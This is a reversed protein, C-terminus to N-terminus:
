ATPSHETYGHRLLDAVHLRTTDLLPISGSSGEPLILPLETGGLIVAEVRHAQELRDIVALLGARTEPRFVGLALEEFYVRHAYDRDAAAPTHVQIGMRAFTEPYFTAEMTTRTGLLGVSTLGRAAAERATAEVISVLPIPSNAAVADFVLHPTNSAFAALTAGANALRVVEATLFATLGSRDGQGVYGLLETLNISNILVHPYTTPFRARHGEVLQRYYAITSEPAIGGVLGFITM